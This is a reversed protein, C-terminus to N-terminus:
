IRYIKPCIFVISFEVKKCFTPYDKNNYQPCLGHITYTDKEKILSLYYFKNNDDKNNSNKNTNYVTNFLQENIYSFINLISM